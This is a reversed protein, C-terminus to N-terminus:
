RLFSEVGSLEPILQGIKIKQQHTHAINGLLFDLNFCWISENPRNADCIGCCSLNTFFIDKVWTHYSGTNDSLSVEKFAKEQMLGKEEMSMSDNEILTWTGSLNKYSLKSSQIYIFLM